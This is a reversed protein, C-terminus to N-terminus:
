NNLSVCSLPPSLLSDGRKEDPRSISKERQAWTIVPLLGPALADAIAMILQNHFEPTEPSRPLTNIADAIAVILQNHFELWLISRELYPDM